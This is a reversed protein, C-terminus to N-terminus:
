LSSIYFSINNATETFDTNSLTAYLRVELGIPPAIFAWLYVARLTCTRTATLQHLVNLLQKDSWPASPTEYIDLKLLRLSQSIAYKEHRKCCTTPINNSIVSYSHDHSIDTESFSSPLFLM